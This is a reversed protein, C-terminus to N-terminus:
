KDGLAKKVEERILAQLMNGKNENMQGTFPQALTREIDAVFGRSPTTEYVLSALHSDISRLVSMIEHAHKDIQSKTGTHQKEEAM